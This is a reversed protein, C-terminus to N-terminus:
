ASWLPATLRSSPRETRPHPATDQSAPPGWPLLSIPPQPNPYPGSVGWTCPTLATIDGLPPLADAFSICFLPPSRPHTSQPGGQAFVAFAGFLTPVVSLTTQWHCQERLGGGGGSEVLVVTLNWFNRFCCRRNNQCPTLREPRPRHPPPHILRERVWVLPKPM